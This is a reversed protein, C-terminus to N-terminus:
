RRTAHQFRELLERDGFIELAETGIRGWVFLDLDSATGRAAVDGKAHVREVTPTPATMTVLWEGDVDNCHLHVTRGDAELDTRSRLWGLVEDVGDAALAAPLAAPTGAAREVDWRHVAVENAQRRFWFRATQDDTWSWAHADPDASQLTKVLYATQERFWPVIEDRGPPAPLTRRSIRDTAHQEVTLAAWRQIEAIHEVLDGVNWEPCSPVRTDLGAREAADALAASERTIVDISDVLEM